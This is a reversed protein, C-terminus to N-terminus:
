FDGDEQTKVPSSKSLDSQAEGQPEVLIERRLDETDTPALRKRGRGPAVTSTVMPDLPEHDAAAM